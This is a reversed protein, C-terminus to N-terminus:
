SPLEERLGTNLFLFDYVLAPREVPAVPVCDFATGGDIAVSVTAAGKLLALVTSADSRDMLGSRLSLVRRVTGATARSTVVEGSLVETPDTADEYEIRLSGVPVANGDITVVDAM